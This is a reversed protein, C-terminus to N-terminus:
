RGFGAPPRGEDLALQAIERLRQARQDAPQARAALLRAAWPLRQDFDRGLAWAAYIFHAAEQESNLGYGAATRALERVMALWRVDDVGKLAKPEVAEIMARVRRAYDGDKRASLADYQAPTIALM